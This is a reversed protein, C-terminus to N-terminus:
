IKFWPTVVVYKISFILRLAIKVPIGAMILFLAMTTVYRIIGLRNYFRKFIFVPIILGVAFYVLVLLDSLAKGAFESISLIRAFIVPLDKLGVVVPKHVHENEWPWYWSWDLGRFWVGIVILAMWLGLGFAYVSVAFKRESFTYSGSGKPNTDLLPILMLGIIILAPLTVGAIWPDFFVLLEQLGLFYWPAKMPNPTTDRGVEEELPAGVYLSLFLLAATVVLVAIFEIYFLHPWSFITDEPEKEVIPGTGKVLEMLGYTKKSNKPFIEFSKDAM